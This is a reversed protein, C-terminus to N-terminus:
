TIIEMKCILYTLGLSTFFSAGPWVATYLYSMFHLQFNWLRREAESM